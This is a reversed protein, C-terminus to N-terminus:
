KHGMLEKELDELAMPRITPPLRHDGVASGTFQSAQVGAAALLKELPTQIPGVQSLESPIVTQHPNNSHHFAGVSANREAGPALAVGQGQQNQQFLKAMMAHPHQKGMLVRLHHAQAAAAAAQQQALLLQVNPPLNSTNQVPPRWAALGLGGQMANVMASYNNQMQLKKLLAAEPSETDNESPSERNSGKKNEESTSAVSAAPVNKSLQRQVSAPIMSTASRTKNQQNQQHQHQQQAQFNAFAFTQQQLFYRNRAAALRLQDHLQQPIPQGNNAMTAAAVAQQLQSEIHANILQPNSAFRALIMPDPVIPIQPTLGAPAQPVPVFAHTQSSNANNTPQVSAENPIQHHGPGGDEQQKALRRLHNLLQAHQMPDQLPNGKGTTNAPVDTKNNVNATFGREIDELKIGAKMNAFQASINGNAVSNSPTQTGSSPTQGFIKALVPNPVVEDANGKVINSAAPINLQSSTRFFRSLRSGGVPAENELQDEKKANENPIDLIGLLAAFEQDTSPLATGASPFAIEASTIATDEINEVNGKNNTLGASSPRSHNASSASRQEKKSEATKSNKKKAKKPEDFGRLEIMDDMTTPGDAWEPLKESGGISGAREDRKNFSFKATTATSRSDKDGRRWENRNPREQNNSKQFPLKFDGTKLNTFKDAGGTSGNRWNKGVGGLRDVNTKERAGDEKNKEADSPARCGSSFGRRQPSLGMNEDIAGTCLAEQIKKSPLRNKIGEVEWRYELWKYPSFKGDEGDFDVSLYDPRTMSLQTVRLRMMEDRDYKMGCDTSSKQGLITSVMPHLVGGGDVESAM